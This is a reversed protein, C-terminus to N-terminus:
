SIEIISEWVINYVIEIPMSPIQYEWITWPFFIKKKTNLTNIIPKLVVSYVM